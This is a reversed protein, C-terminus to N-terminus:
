RPKYGAGSLIKKGDLSLLNELATDPHKKIYANIIQRGIFLSIFGPSGEGFELTSPADNTFSRLRFMDTEYLLNNELFYNWILGENKEAGKLQSSTYGLKLTDNMNPLFLDLLYMRKGHDVFIDILASGQKVAPLIDDIVNKMANVPIYDTTFRKSIYSPYLQMGQETNYIPATAGLHLQLGAGLAQATIIDGSGGTQNTAYADIPGIFTIFQDPLKYNPFYYNVLKLANKTDGISKEIEKNLPQTSIYIPYYDRHFQKIASSWYSTDVGELGLIRLVFDNSFDHYKDRLKEMESNIDNTDIGFFDNEFRLTELEVNINSTNPQKKENCSLM